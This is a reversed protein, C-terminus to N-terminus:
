SSRIGRIEIKGENLWESIQRNLAIAIIGLIMAVFGGPWWSTILYFLESDIISDGLIPEWNVYRFVLWVGFVGFGFSIPGLRKPFFTLLGRLVMLLFAVLIVFVVWGGFEEGFYGYFYFKRSFMAAVFFAISASIVAAAGRNKKFRGSLSFFIFAFIVSFVLGFVVWENNLLDSPSVYDYGFGNYALSVPLLFMILTITLIIKDKM